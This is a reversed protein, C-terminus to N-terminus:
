TGVRRRAGGPASATVSPIGHRLRRLEGRVLSAWRGARPLRLLGGWPARVALGHVGGVVPTYEVDVGLDRARGAAWETASAPIGPVGAPRADLTGHLLRLRRGELRRLDIRPPLWPALGIVGVLDPDDAVGVAVAGGLSFGVAVRAPSGLGRVADIALAGDSLSAELRQWSSRRYRVEVTRWADRGSSLRRALWEGTPSWTGEADRHTSGGFVMVVPADSPGRLRLEPGDAISITEETTTSM